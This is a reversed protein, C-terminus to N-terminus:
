RDILSDIQSLRLATIVSYQLSNDPIIFNVIEGGYHPLVTELVMKLLYIRDKWADWIV